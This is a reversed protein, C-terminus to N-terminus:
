FGRVRGFQVPSVVEWRFLKITADGRADGSVSFGWGQYPVSWVEPLFNENGFKRAADSVPHILGESGRICIDFNKMEM